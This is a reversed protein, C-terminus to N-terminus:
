LHSCCLKNLIFLSYTAMVSIFNIQAKGGFSNGEALEM